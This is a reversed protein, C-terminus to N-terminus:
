LQVKADYKLWAEKKTQANELNTGVLAEFAPTTLCKRVRWHLSCKLFCFRWFWGMFKPTLGCPMVKTTHNRTEARCLKHKLLSHVRVSNTELGETRFGCFGSNELGHNGSRIGSDRTRIKENGACRYPPLKCGELRVSESLGGAAHRAHLDCHQSDRDGRHHLGCFTLNKARSPTWDQIGSLLAVTRNRRQSPTSVSFLQIGRQPTRIKEIKMRSTQCSLDLCQWMRLQHKKRWNVHKWLFWKTPIM